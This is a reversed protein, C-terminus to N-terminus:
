EMLGSFLKDNVVCNRWFATEGDNNGRSCKVTSFTRVVLCYIDWATRVSSGLVVGLVDDMDTKRIAGLAALKEFEARKEELSLEKGMLKSFCPVVKTMFFDLAKEAGDIVKVLKSELKKSKLHMAEASYLKKGFCYWSDGVMVGLAFGVKYEGDYSTRFDFTPTLETKVGGNELEVKKAGLTFRSVVRAGNKFVNHKFGCSKDRLGLKRLSDEFNLVQQKHDVLQYKNGMVSLVTQKGDKDVRVTAMFRDTGLVFQGGDDAAKIPRLDVNYDLEDTLVNIDATEEVGVEESGATTGELEEVQEVLADVYTSDENATVTEM